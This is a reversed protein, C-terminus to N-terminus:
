YIPVYQMKQIAPLATDHWLKEFHKDKKLKQLWDPKLAGLKAVEFKSKEENDLKSVPNIVDVDKLINQIKSILYPNELMMESFNRVIM